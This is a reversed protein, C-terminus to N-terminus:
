KMFEYTTRVLPTDDIYERLLLQGLTKVSLDKFAAVNNFKYKSPRYKKYILKDREVIDFEM